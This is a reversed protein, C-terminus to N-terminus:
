KYPNATAQAVRPSAFLSLIASDHLNQISAVSLYCYNDLDRTDNGYYMSTDSDWIISDGSSSTNVTFGGIGLYVPMHWDFQQILEIGYIQDFMSPLYGAASGKSNMIFSAVSYSRLESTSASAPSSSTFLYVSCGDVIETGYTDLQMTLLTTNPIDTAANKCVVDNDSAVMLRTAVFIDGANPSPIHMNLVKPASIYMADCTLNSTPIGTSGRTIYTQSRINQVLYGSGISTSQTIDLFPKRASAVGTVSSGWQQQLPVITINEIQSLTEQSFVPVVSYEIDFTPISFLNSAGYAKLIDGSMIRASESALVADALWSYVLKFNEVKYPASNTPAGPITAMLTTLHYAELLNAGVTEGETFKYVTSPKYIYSQAKPDNSDLFVNSCMWIHRTFYAMDAPVALTQLRVAMINLYSRFDSLNQAFDEYDFGLAQIIYRAYYKNMYSDSRMLGYIRGGLAHLMYLSDMALLYMMLDQSEYNASGSNAYRLFAFINRAATNPAATASDAKGITTVFSIVCVGPVAAIPQKTSSFMAKNNFRQGFPPLSGLPILFNFMSSDIAVQDNKLYWSPDNDASKFDAKNLEDRDVNLEVEKQRKKSRKSPSSARRTVKHNTNIKSRNM